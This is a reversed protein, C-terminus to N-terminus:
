RNMWHPLNDLGSRLQSAASVLLLTDDNSLLVLTASTPPLTGAEWPEQEAYAAAAQETQDSSMGGIFSGVIGSGTNGTEDADEAKCKRWLDLHQYLGSWNCTACTIRIVEDIM